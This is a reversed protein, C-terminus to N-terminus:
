WAPRAVGAVAEKVLQHGDTVQWIVMQGNTHGSLLRLCSTRGSGALQDDQEQPGATPSKPSSNALQMPALCTAAGLGRCDALHQQGNADWLCIANKGATSFVLQQSCAIAYLPGTCTRQTQDLDLVLAAGVVSLVQLSGDSHGVWCRGRLDVAMSCAPTDITDHHRQLPPLDDSPSSSTTTVMMVSGDAHGTWIRQRTPDSVVVTVKPVQTVFLYCAPTAM